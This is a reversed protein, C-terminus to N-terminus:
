RTVLLSFAGSLRIRALKFRANGYYTYVEHNFLNDVDTKLELFISKYLRIRLGLVAGISGNAVVHETSADNQSYNVETRSIGVSLALGGWAHIIRRKIFLFSAVLDIVYQDNVFDAPDTSVTTRGTFVAGLSLEFRKPLPFRLDINAGHFVLREEPYTLLTYGVTFLPFWKKAGPPAAEGTAEVQPTPLTKAVADKVKEVKVIQSLKEDTFALALLEDDGEIADLDAFLSMGMINRIVIAMEDPKLTEKVVLSVDVKVLQRNIADYIRILTGDDTWVIFSAGSEALNEAIVLSDPDKVVSPPAPIKILEFGSIRLEKKLALGASDCDPLLHVQSRATAEDEYEEEVKEEESAAQPAAQVPLCFFIVVPESKQARASKCALVSIAATFFAILIIELRYMSKNAVKVECLNCVFTDIEEQHIKGM